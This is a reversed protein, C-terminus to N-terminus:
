RASPPKNPSTRETQGPASSPGKARGVLLVLLVVHQLVEARGAVRFKVSQYDQTRTTVDNWPTNNYSCRVKVIKHFVLAIGERLKGAQGYAAWSVGGIGFAGGAASASPPGTAEGGELFPGGELFSALPGVAEGAELFSAPLGLGASGYGKLLTEASRFEARLEAIQVKADHLEKKLQDVGAVADGVSLKDSYNEGEALRKLCLSHVGVMKRLQTWLDKMQARLEGERLSREQRIPAIRDRLQQNTYPQHNTYTPRKKPNWWIVFLARAPHIQDVSSRVGVVGVLYSQLLKTRCRRTNVYDVMIISDCLM